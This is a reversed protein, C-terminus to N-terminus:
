MSIDGIDEENVEIEDDLPELSDSEALQRLRVKQLERQGEHRWAIDGDLNRLLHLRATKFEEGIMGLRLLWTRFTYKPNSTQTRIASASRQQIAQNSVALCFQIYAKIKGAHLTGNFLRFEVTGRYFMSHLNLAHYRSDDYHTRQRYTDGNYWIHKIAEQSTPRSRNLREIFNQDVKRCYDAERNSNIDLAKFLLDEKSNVINCLNRLSRGTHNAGDIHIHIGCSNNVRAGISKLNRIIQQITEIDSYNCIPSVLEVKYDRGTRRGLSNIATISGDYVLSWKRGESDPVSYNGNNNEILSSVGFYKAIKKAATYRTIGTFEIEIGFRQNRM